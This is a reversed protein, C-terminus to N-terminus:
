MHGRTHTHTHAEGYNGNQNIFTSIDFITQPRRSLSRKSNQWRRTHTHTHPYGHRNNTKPFTRLYVLLCCALLVFLPLPTYRVHRMFTMYWDFDCKACPVVSVPWAWNKLWTLQNVEPAAQWRLSPYQLPPDYTLQNWLTWTEALSNWKFQSLFICYYNIYVLLM